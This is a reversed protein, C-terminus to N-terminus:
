RAAIYARLSVAAGQNLRAGGNRTKVHYVNLGHSRLRAAVTPRLGSSETMDHHSKTDDGNDDGPQEDGVQPYGTGARLIRVLCVDQELGRVHQVAVEQEAAPHQRIDREVRSFKRLVRQQLMDEPQPQPGGM